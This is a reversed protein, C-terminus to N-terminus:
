TYPWKIFATKIKQTIKRIQIPSERNGSGDNGGGRGVIDVGNWVSCMSLAWVDTPMRLVNTNTAGWWRMLFGMGM